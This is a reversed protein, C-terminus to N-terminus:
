SRSILKKLSKSTMNEPQYFEQTGDSWVVDILEGHYSIKKAQMNYKQMLNSLEIFFQRQKNKMKM